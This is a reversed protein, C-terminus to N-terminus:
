VEIFLTSSSPPAACPVELAQTIPADSVRVIRCHECDIWGRRCRHAGHAYQERQRYAHCSSERTRLLSRSSTSKLRLRTRLYTRLCSRVDLSQHGSGRRHLTGWKQNRHPHSRSNATALRRSSCAAHRKRQAKCATCQNASFAL